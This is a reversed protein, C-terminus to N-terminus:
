SKVDSATYEVTNPNVIPAYTPRVETISTSRRPSSFSVFAKPKSKSKWPMADNTPGGNAPLNSIPQFPYLCNNFSTCVKLNTTHNSQNM